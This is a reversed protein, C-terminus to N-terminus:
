LSIHTQSNKGAVMTAHSSARMTSMWTMYGVASIMQLLPHTSLNFELSMFGNTIASSVPHRVVIITLYVWNLQLLRPLSKQVPVIVFVCGCVCLWVVVCGCCVNVFVCGCCVVVFVIVFVCGCCVVM